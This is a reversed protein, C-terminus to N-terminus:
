AEEVVIVRCSHPSGEGVHYGVEINTENLTIATIYSVYPQYWAALDGGLFKSVLNRISDSSLLWAFVALPKKACFFQDYGSGVYPGEFYEYSVAGSLTGVLGFINVDKKINAAIFDPDGATVWSMDTGDFYGEPAKFFLTGPSQWIGVNDNRGVGYTGVTNARNVMTGTIISGSVGAKKGELIQTAAADASSTDIVNPNGAVGFINTGARVNGSILDPNGNVVVSSLAKGADPTVTFGAANPTVTKSQEPKAGSNTRGIM